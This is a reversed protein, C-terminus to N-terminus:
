SSRASAYFYYTTLIESKEAVTIQLVHIANDAAYLEDIKRTWELMAPTDREVVRTAAYMMATVWSFQLSAILAMLHEREM